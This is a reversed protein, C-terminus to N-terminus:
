CTFRCSFVVLPKHAWGGALVSRTHQLVGPLLAQACTSGCVVLSFLKSLQKTGCCCCIDQATTYSSALLVCSGKHMWASVVGVTLQPPPEFATIANTGLLPVGMNGAIASLDGAVEGVLGAASLVAGPGWGSSHGSSGTGIAQFPAAVELILSRLSELHAIGAACCCWFM